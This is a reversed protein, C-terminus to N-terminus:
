SCKIHMIAKMNSYNHLKNHYTKQLYSLLVPQFVVLLKIGSDSWKSQVSSSSIISQLNIELNLFLSLM